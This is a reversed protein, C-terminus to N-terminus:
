FRLAYVIKFAFEQNTPHLSSADRALTENFVLFVDRGPELIWHVRSNWGLSDTDNDFQVFNSWTLDPTFAFEIRARGLHTTFSGGDLDVDSREYALSGTFLASPRWACSLVYDERRGDYFEGAELTANASLPRKLSSELQLRARTFEYEGAAITVQDKIDFPADLVERTRVLQFLAEDGSDFRIGLPQVEVQATELHDEVDTVVDTRVQFELRRIATDIRPEFQLETAYSRVGRRQVFGLKPDFRDQVERASVRYTWIDNPFDLAAGFAADDGAAEANSSRLGWASANLNKSGLFSSTRWVADVGYLQASGAGSPDGNTFIAGVTSQEGVNRTVRAVLLNEADLARTDRTEVDVVGLSWDGIRGTLKGGVELPVENGGADIGIRRSFFPVLTRDLDAFDFIGADQLFFARKEPFFLPFRTLNIRRDDVETEAFDTHFTLSAQLSPTLRYFVDFGPQGTLTSDDEVRDAAHRATFFPVVDLGLGQELGAFGRVDGADSIAFFRADARLGSWRVNELKRKIVRNINFGWADSEPDFALTALPIAIEASWGLADISSRGEWIGDWPKNFGGGNRSILADGKSGAASMQFYFANRRDRFTDVIIELRDDPDLEADRSRQTAVIREPERDFCRVGIYLHRDDVLLRVDTAETAPAAVRPEMQVLAGITPATSWCSEDLVGDVVPAVSVRTVHAIPRTVEQARAAGALCCALGLGSGLAARAPPGPRFRAYACPISM